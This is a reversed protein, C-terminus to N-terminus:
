NNINRVSKVIKSFDSRVRKLSDIQLIYESKSMEVEVSDKYKNFFNKLLVIFYKYYMLFLHPLFNQYFFSRFFKLFKNKTIETLYIRLIPAAAGTGSTANLIFKKTLRSKPIFHTYILSPEYWLNYGCIQIAYCMEPDEGGTFGKIFTTSNKGRTPNFFPKFGNKKAKLWAEKRFVSGAGWFWLRKQDKVYGAKKGQHGVAYIGPYNSFWSPPDIECHPKGFAGIAGVDNNHKMINYAINLYNEDIWNDDDVICIIEGKANYLGSELAPTKGQKSENIIKLKDDFKSFIKKSLKLTNDSSIYDVILVEWDINQPNNQAIIHKLTETIRKESNHTCILFTVDM